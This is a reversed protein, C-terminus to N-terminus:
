YALTLSAKEYLSGFNLYLCLLSNRQTENKNASFKEESLFFFLRKKKEGEYTTVKFQGFLFFLFSYLTNAFALLCHHGSTKKCSM